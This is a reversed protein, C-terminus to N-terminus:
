IYSYCYSYLYVIICYYVINMDLEIDLVSVTWMSHVTLVCYYVFFIMFCGVFPKENLINFVLIYIVIPQLYLCNFSM